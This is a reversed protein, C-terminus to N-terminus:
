NILGPVIAKGTADYLDADRYTQLIQDTPGVAAIADGAVAVALDNRVSDVNVVMAHSFVVPRASASQAEAPSRAVLLAAGAGGAALLERRTLPEPNSTRARSLTGMASLRDRVGFGSGGFGSGSRRVECGSGRVPYVRHVQGPAGRRKNAYPRTGG